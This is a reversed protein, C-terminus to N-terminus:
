QPMCPQSVEFTSFPFLVSRWNGYMTDFHASAHKYALACQSVLIKCWRRMLSM